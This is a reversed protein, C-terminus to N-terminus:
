VNIDLGKGQIRSYVNRVVGEFCNSLLKSSM